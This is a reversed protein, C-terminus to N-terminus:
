MVLNTRSCEDFSVLEVVDLCNGCSFGERLALASSEPGIPSIKLSTISGSHGRGLALLNGSDYNWLRVLRDNGGSLFLDGGAKETIDVTNIEQESGELVRIEKGDGASWYTLKRDSGCTLFQSEDPHFRVGTFLTSAQCSLLRKLNEPNAFDTIEPVKWLIISGDASASIVEQDSKTIQVSNVKKSHEKVNGILKPLRTTLDFDNAGDTWRRVRGDMGGSIMEGCKNFCAIATVGGLHADPLNYVLKAAPLPSHESKGM